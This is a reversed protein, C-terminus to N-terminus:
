KRAGHQEWLHGFHHMIYDRGVPDTGPQFALKALEAALREWLPQQLRMVTLLEDALWHLM